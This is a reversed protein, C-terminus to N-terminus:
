VQVPRGGPLGQLLHRSAFTRSHGRGQLKLTSAPPNAPRAAPRLALALPKGTLWPRQMTQTRRGTRRNLLRSGVRHRHSSRGGPRRAWCVLNRRAARLHRCGLHRLATVRHLGKQYPLRRAALQCHLLLSFATPGPLRTPEVHPPRKSPPSRQLRRRTAKQRQCV